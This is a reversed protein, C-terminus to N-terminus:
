HEVGILMEIAAPPADIVRAIKTLLTNRNFPKVIFDVAGLKCTALIVEKEGSGSVM